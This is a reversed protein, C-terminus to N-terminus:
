GTAILAESQNVRDPANPAVNPRRLQDPNRLRDFTATIKAAYATPTQYGVASHPRKNNYYEVWTEIKRRAHDLGLFLSENLLEDRM